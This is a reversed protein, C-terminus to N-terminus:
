LKGGRPRRLGRRKPDLRVECFCAGYASGPPNSPTQKDVGWRASYLLWFTLGDAAIFKSPINLCYANPGFDDLHHILRWPGTMAESELLMVGEAAHEKPHAPDDTDRRVLPAVCLLYRGLAENWTMASRGLRGPWSAIPAIGALDRTWQPRGAADPGAYGEWHEPGTIGALTAPARLLYVFDGNGWESPRAGTSGHATLYVHGDRRKRRGDQGHDVFQPGRFRSNHPLDAFFGGPRELPMNSPYGPRGVPLKRAQMAPDHRYKEWWLRAPSGVTADTWGSGDGFPYGLRGIV